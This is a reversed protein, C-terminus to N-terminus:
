DGLALLRLPVAVPQRAAADEDGALALSGVRQRRRQAPEAHAGGDIRAGAGGVLEGTVGGVDAGAGHEDEVSAGGLEVGAARRPRDGRRQELVGVREDLREAKLFRLLFPSRIATTIM